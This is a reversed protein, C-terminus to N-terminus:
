VGVCVPTVIDLVMINTDAKKICQPVHLNKKLSRYMIFMLTLTGASSSCPTGPM